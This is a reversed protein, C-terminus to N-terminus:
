RCCRHKEKVDNSFGRFWDVTEKEEQVIQYTYKGYSFIDYRTLLVGLNNDLIKKIYATKCKIMTDFAFMPGNM